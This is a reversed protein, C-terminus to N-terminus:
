PAVTGGDSEPDTTVAFGTPVQWPAIEKGVPISIQGRKLALGIWALFRKKTGNVVVPSCGLGILRRKAQRSELETSFWEAWQPLVPLGFRVGIRFLLFAPDDSVLVTRRAKVDGGARSLALEKSIAFLHRVPRKRGPISVSGRFVEPDESLVIHLAPIGPGHVELTAKEAIAAAVAAIDQDGGFVSVLHAKGRSGLEGTCEVILRDLWVRVDLTTERTVKRFRLTGFRLHANKM